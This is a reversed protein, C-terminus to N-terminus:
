APRTVSYCRLELLIAEVLRVLGVEEPEAVTKLRPPIRGHDKCRQMCREHALTHDPHELGLDAVEEVRNVVLPQQSHQGVPNGVWPNVAEHPLPEFGANQLAVLPVLCFPFRRLTRTDAREQGVDKQVGYEVEPDLSLTTPMCANADHNYAVRVVEHHAELAPGVRPLNPGVELLVQCAKAQRQV